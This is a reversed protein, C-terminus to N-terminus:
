DRRPGQTPFTSPSHIAVTLEFYYQQNGIEESFEDSNDFALVEWKVIEEEVTFPLKIQMPKGMLPEEPDLNDTYKAVIERL